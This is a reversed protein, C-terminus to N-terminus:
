RWPEPKAQLMPHQEPVEVAALAAPDVGLVMAAQKIRAERSWHRYNWGCTCPTDWCKECDSLAM